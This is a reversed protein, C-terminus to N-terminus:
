AQTPSESLFVRYFHPGTFEVGIVRGDARPVIHRVRGQTTFKGEDERGQNPLPITIEVDVGVEIERSLVFAVGARCVNESMTHEDFRTGSRDIGSVAVPLRVRVRRERRRGDQVPEELFESM